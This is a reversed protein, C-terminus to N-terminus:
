RVFVLHAYIRRVETAVEAVFPKAAPTAPAAPAAQQPLAGPDACTSSSM